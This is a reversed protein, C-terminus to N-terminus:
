FINEFKLIIKEAERKLIIEADIRDISPIDFRITIVDTIIKDDIMWQLSERIYQRLHPYISPTKKQGLLTWIKSGIPKDNIADAWWGRRSKSKPAEENTARGHTLLSILVVDYLEINLSSFDWKYQLNTDLTIM